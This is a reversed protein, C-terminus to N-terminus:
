RADFYHGADLDAVLGPHEPEWGLMARTLANSAPSDVGVLGALFGFHAPADDPAIARVPVGLHRGIVEAVDRIRVGEEGVGHVAAGAPAKELALRFLRAADLRHVAPWRNQGDGLIGAVGKERAIAVLRPVFGHDGRGHVTPSLRLISSRVGRAALALASRVGAHRGSVVPPLTPQDRETLLRGSFNLVGASVVLPKGTGELAGGLAQIALDDTRASAALNAFDHIFAMHIVGDSEAAGASLVELDDLAGRRVEAGAAALAAASADSRALAVVRHGAELLEAVVASGIFGSGGTVFVRM